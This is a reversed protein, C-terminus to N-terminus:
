VLLFVLFFAFEIIIVFVLRMTPEVIVRGDFKKQRTANCTGTLNRTRLTNETSELDMRTDRVHVAGKSRNFIKRMVRGGSRPPAGSELGPRPPNRVIPLATARM